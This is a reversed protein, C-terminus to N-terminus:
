IGHQRIKEFQEKEQDTLNKPISVKIKVMLNGRQRTRVNPLGEGRCSLV